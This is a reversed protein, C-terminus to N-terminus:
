LTRKLTKKAVRLVEGLMTVPDLHGNLATTINTSPAKRLDQRAQKRQQQSEQKRSVTGTLVYRRTESPSKVQRDVTDVDVKANSAGVRIDNHDAQM